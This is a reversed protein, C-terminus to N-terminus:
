RDGRVPVREAGGGAGRRRVSGAGATGAAVLDPGGGPKEFALMGEVGQFTIPRLDGPGAGPAVGGSPRALVGHGDFHVIHFPEEAAKAEALTQQLADLTPPRLVVLDVEGRVADLRELLPRAIMRYGVDAAGAPRSIVMLVRLRGGPVASRRAGADAVPLSRSVGALDLALPTAPGSRADAGVAVGAAGAVGVPVGAGRRRGPGRRRRLCRAGPGARVGVRVGREGWGALQAQSRRAATRMCGSRRGCTIRWIGACIRWRRPMWRGRWIAGSEGAGAARGGAVDGGVCLGRRM